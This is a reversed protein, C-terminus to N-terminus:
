VREENINPAPGPGLEAELQRVAEVEGLVRQGRPTERWHRYWADVQESTLSFGDEHLVAIVQAKFRQYCGPHRVVPDETYLAVLIARALEAPGSGSYGWQFGDASHRFEHPGIDPLPLVADDLMVLCGGGRQGQRYGKIIRM